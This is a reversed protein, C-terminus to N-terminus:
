ILSYQAVCLMYASLTVIMNKSKVRKDRKKIVTPIWQMLQEVLQKQSNKSM